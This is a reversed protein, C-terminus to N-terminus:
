IRISMCMTKGNKIKGLFCKFTSIFTIKLKTIYELFKCFLIINTKAFMYKTKCHSEVKFDFFM